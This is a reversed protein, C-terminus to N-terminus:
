HTIPAASVNSGCILIILFSYYTHMGDGPDVRVSSIRWTRDRDISISLTGSKTHNRKNAVNVTAQALSLVYADRSRVSSPLGARSHWLRM